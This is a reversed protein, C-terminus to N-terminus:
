PKVELHPKTPIPITRNTESDDLELACLYLLRLYWLIMTMKIVDALHRSHWLGRIPQINHRCYKDPFGITCCQDPRWSNKNDAEPPRVAPLAEGMFKKVLDKWNILPAITMKSEEQNVAKLIQFYYNSKNTTGREREGGLMGIWSGWGGQTREGARQRSPSARSRAAPPPAPQCSPAPATVILSSMMIKHSWSVVQYM